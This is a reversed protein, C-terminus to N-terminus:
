PGVTCTDATMWRSGKGENGTHTHTHTRTKRSFRAKGRGPPTIVCMQLHNVEDRSSRLLAGTLVPDKHFKGDTEWCFRVSSLKLNSRTYFNSM